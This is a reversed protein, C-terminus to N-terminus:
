LRVVPLDRGTGKDTATLSLAGHVDVHFSFLVCPQRPAGPPIQTVEYEGLSENGAVLDNEGQFPKLKISTQGPDATTFTETLSVPLATGKTILPTFRGHATEIGVSNRLRDRKRLRM